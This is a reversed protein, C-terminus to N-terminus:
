ENVQYHGNFGTGYNLGNICEVKGAPTRDLLRLKSKVISLNSCLQQLAPFERSWDM